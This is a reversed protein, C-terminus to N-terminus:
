FRWNAISIGHSPGGVSTVTQTGVGCTWSAITDVCLHLRANSDNDTFGYSKVVTNFDGYYGVWIGNTQLMWVSARVGNVNSRFTGGYGNNNNCTGPDAREWAMQTGGIVLDFTRNTNLGACQASAVGPGVMWQALVMLLSMAVSIGAIRKIRDKM